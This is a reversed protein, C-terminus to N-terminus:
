QQDLQGYTPTDTGMFAASPSALYLDFQQMGMSTGLQLSTFGTTEPAALFQSDAIVTSAATGPAGIDALGQISGQGGFNLWMLSETQMTMDFTTLSYTGFLTAMSYPTGTQLDAEGVPATLNSANQSFCQLIFFRSPSVAYFIYLRDDTTTQGGMTGQTSLMGRGNLRNNNLNYGGTISEGNRLGGLNGSGDLNFRGIQEFDFYNLNGGNVQVPQDILFAYDGSLSSTPYSQATQLVALGLVANAPAADMEIFYMETSDIVYVAYNSTGLSSKLQLTGRGNPSVSYNSTTLPIQLSATGFDNIDEVGRTVSGAGNLSFMGVMSIPQPSSTSNSGSDIGTARFVYMGSVAAPNFAAPNQLELTGKATGLGDFEIVSGSAGGASLVFRLTIGSPHCANPNFVLLGRGDPYAVSTGSIAIDQQVGAPGKSDEVGSINGQADASINGAFFALGQNSRSTLSFAYPGTFIAYASNVVNLATSGTVGNSTANITVVGASVGTIIGGAVASAKSADSTSWQATNTLNQSSGDNYNGLAHFQQHEGVLVGPGIPSLVISQLVPVVSLQISASLAAISATVTFTGKKLGAVLGAQSVSALNTASSSWTVGSVPRAPKGDQYTGMATLQLSGGLNVANAGASISLSVLNDTVMVNASSTMSSYTAQVDVSGAAIPTLLGSNGISAITTASSTWVANSTVNSSTGDNYHAFANFQLTSDVSTSYVNGVATVSLSVLTHTVILALSGTVSDLTAVIKVDGSTVATILGSKGVTATGNASSSWSASSTVNRTSGDSYKATATLQESQGVTISGSPSTVVISTLSPTTSPPTTPAIKTFAGSGCGALLLLGTLSFCLSLRTLM